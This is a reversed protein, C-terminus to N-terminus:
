FYIFVLHNELIKQSNVQFWVGRTSLIATQTFLAMPGSLPKPEQCSPHRVNQTSRPPCGSMTELGKDAAKYHYALTCVRDNCGNEDQISFPKDLFSFVKDSPLFYNGRAAASINVSFNLTGAATCRKAM